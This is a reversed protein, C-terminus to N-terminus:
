GTMENAIIFLVADVKETGVCIVCSERTCDCACERVHSNEHVSQTRACVCVTCIFHM